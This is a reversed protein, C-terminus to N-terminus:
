VRKELNSKSRRSIIFHSISAGVAAAQVALPFPYNGLISRGAADIVNSDYFYSIIPISLIAGTVAGIVYPRCYM